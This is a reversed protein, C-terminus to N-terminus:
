PLPEVSVIGAGTPLSFVTHATTQGTPIVRLMRPATGPTFYVGAADYAWLRANAVSASEVLSGSPAYFNVRSLDSVAFKSSNPAWVPPGAPPVGVKTGTAVDLIEIGNTTTYALWKGNPSWAADPFFRLDSCAISCIAKPAHGNADALTLFLQSPGSRLAAYAIKGPPRSWALPHYRRNYRPGVIRHGRGSAASVVNLHKGSSQGSGSVLLANSRPSWVYATNVCALVHRCSPPAPVVVHGGSGDIGQVVLGKVTAYAVLKGNPSLVGSPEYVAANKALVRITSGNARVIILRHHGPAGPTRSEVLFRLPPPPVASGAAGASAAGVLVVAAVGVVRGFRM